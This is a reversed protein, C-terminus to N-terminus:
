AAIHGASAPMTEFRAYGGYALDFYRGALEFHADAAQKTMAVEGRRLEEEARELYYLRDTPTM